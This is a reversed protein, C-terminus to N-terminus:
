IQLPPSKNLEGKGKKFLALGIFCLLILSINFILHQNWSLKEIFGACQCPMNPAYVILYVVYLTFLSLLIISGILGLRRTKPIFLFTLILLETLIVLRAAAGAIPHLLDTRGITFEFNELNRIKDWSTYLFVFLLLGCILDAFLLRWNIKRKNNVAVEM